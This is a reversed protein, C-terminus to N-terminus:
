PQTHTRLSRRPPTSAGQDLVAPQTPEPPQPLDPELHEQPNQLPVIDELHEYLVEPEHAIDNQKIPVDIDQEEHLGYDQNITPTNLDGLGNDPPIITDILEPVGPNESGGILRDKHDYFTFLEPQGDATGLENIRDIVEQPM